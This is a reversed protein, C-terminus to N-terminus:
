EDRNRADEGHKVDARRFIFETVFNRDREFVATGVGPVSSQVYFTFTYQLHSKSPLQERLRGTPKLHVMTGRSSRAFSSIIVALMASHHCERNDVRSQHYSNVQLFIIKQANVSKVDLVM